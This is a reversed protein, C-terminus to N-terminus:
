VEVICGLINHVTRKGKRWVGRIYKYGANKLSEQVEKDNVTKKKYQLYEEVLLEYKTKKM